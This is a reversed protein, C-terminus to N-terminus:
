KSAQGLAYGSAITVAIGTIIGTALWFEGSQYWPTPQWNKELFSIRTNKIEMLSEYRKVEIGLRLELTRLDSTLRSTNLRLEKEISLRCERKSFKIDGFLTAAAIQSLLVGEFPAAQGEKLQTVKGRTIDDVTDAYAYVPTLVLSLCCALSVLKTKLHILL